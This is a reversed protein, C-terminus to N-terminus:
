VSSLGGTQTRPSSPKPNRSPLLPPFWPTAEMGAEAPNWGRIGFRAVRGYYALNMAAAYPLTEIGRPWRARWALRRAIRWPRYFERTVWDHGAQLAEASMGKPQFVAHHFDYHSWNWDLIRGRMAEFHRAGPTLAATRQPPQGDPGAEAPVGPSIPLPTYISVQVLDIRLSDLLELTRGFVDPRDGDFGFVIGAEVGIGRSHLFAVRERYTGARNFSKEVSALNGESFTELGAFIGMCGARAALDVLETDEAIALTSQTM